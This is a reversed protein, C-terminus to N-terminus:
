AYLGHRLTLKLFKIKTKLHLQSHIVNTQSV